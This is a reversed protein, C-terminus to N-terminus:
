RKTSDMAAKQTVSDPGPSKSYSGKSIRGHLREM